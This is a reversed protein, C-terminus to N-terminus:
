MTIWTVISVCHVFGDGNGFSGDFCFRTGGDGDDQEHDKRGRQKASQQGIMVRQPEAPLYEARGQPQALHREDFRAPQGRLRHYQSEHDPQHPMECAVFTEAGNVRAPQACRQGGEGGDGQAEETRVVVLQPREQLGGDAEDARGDRPAEVLHRPVSARKGRSQHDRREPNERQHRRARETREGVKPQGQERAKGEAQERGQEVARRRAVNERVRETNQAHQGQQGGGEAAVAPLQDQQSDQRGERKGEGRQHGRQRTPRDERPQGGRGGESENVGGLQADQEAVEGADAQARGHAHQPQAQQQADQREDQAGDELM